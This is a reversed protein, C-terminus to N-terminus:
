KEDGNDDAGFSVAKDQWIKAPRGADRQGRVKDYVSMNKTLYIIM